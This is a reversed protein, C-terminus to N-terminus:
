HSNVSLLFPDKGTILNVAIIRYINKLYDAIVLQHFEMM